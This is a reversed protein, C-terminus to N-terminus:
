LSKARDVTQISCELEVGGEQQSEFAWPGHFTFTVPVDKPLYQLLPLGYLAFHLNIADPRILKRQQFKQRVRWLRQPLKQEPSALNTLTIPLNPLHTPLGIGCLEVQDGATALQLILEHVYRNLGGPTQPFWGMGLYLMSASSNELNIM